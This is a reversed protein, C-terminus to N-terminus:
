SFIIMKRFLNLRNNNNFYGKIFALNSSKGAIQTIITILSFISSIYRNINRKEM